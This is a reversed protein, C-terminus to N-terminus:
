AVEIWVIPSRAYIREAEAKAQEASSYLLDGIVKWHRDCAFLYVQGPADPYECVALATIKMKGARGFDNAPDNKTKFLVRAGELEVISSSARPTTM